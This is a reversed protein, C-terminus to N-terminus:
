NTLTFLYVAYYKSETYEVACIHAHIFYLAM